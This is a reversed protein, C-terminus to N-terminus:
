HELDHLPELSLTRGQMIWPTLCVRLLRRAPTPPPQPIATRWVKEMRGKM